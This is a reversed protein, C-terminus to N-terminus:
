MQVPTAVTSKKFLKTIGYSGGGSCVLGLAILLLVFDLEYGGIFGKGAKVLVIAGVMVFALLLSSVRTFVGLIVFIGALVEIITVLYAVIAPMGLMGFFGVVQDIGQLKQVGHLLFTVGLAVRVLLWGLDANQWSRFSNM